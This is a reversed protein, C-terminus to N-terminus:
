ISMDYIKPPENGLASRVSGPIREDDKLDVWNVVSNKADTLTDEVQKAAYYPNITRQSPRFLSLYLYGAASLLYFGVVAWTTWGPTEIYRDVVLYALVFLLSAILLVGGTAFYDLQRIRTRAQNIQKEVFEEQKGVPKPSELVAAM